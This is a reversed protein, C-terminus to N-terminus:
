CSGCPDLDILSFSCPVVVVFEHSHSELDVIDPLTCHLLKLVM